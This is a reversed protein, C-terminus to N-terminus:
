FRKTELGSRHALRALYGWDGANFDNAFTRVMKAVEKLHDELRHRHKPPIGESSHAYYEDKM